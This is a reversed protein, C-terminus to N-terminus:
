KGVAPLLQHQNQLMTSPQDVPKMNKNTGMEACSSQLLKELLRIPYSLVFFICAYAAALNASAHKRPNLPSAPM